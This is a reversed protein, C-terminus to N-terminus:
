RQYNDLIFTIEALTQELQDFESKEWQQRAQVLLATVQINIPEEPQRLYDAVVDYRNIEDITPVWVTYLYASPDLMEQYRRMTDFLSATLRVDDRTEDSVTYTELEAIFNDELQALTIEFHQQLALDMTKWSKTYPGPMMIDCYFGDFGEWGYTAVLYEVLAGAELYSYEHQLKYFDDKAMTKLPIFEGLELLAAARPLSPGARFHGGSSYVMLGEVLMMPRYYPCHLSDAMHSIEHHLTVEFDGPIYGEDDYSLYVGSFGGQGIQRPYLFFTLKEPFPEQFQTEVKVYQEQIQQTITELDREADTGTFYFITCCDTTTFKLEAEAEAQPLEDAPLLEVQKTITIDFPKVLITLEYVGPAWGGTDWAFALTARADYMPIFHSTGIPQDGVKIAISYKQFSETTDFLSLPASVEVSIKDGVYLNGSPHIFVTFDQPRANTCAPLLSVCLLLLLLLSIPKM